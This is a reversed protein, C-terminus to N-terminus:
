LSHPVLVRIHPCWLGAARPHYRSCPRPPLSIDRCKPAIDTPVPPLTCHGVPTGQGCWAPPERRGPLLGTQLELVTEAVPWYRCGGTGLSDRGAAAYIGAGCSCGLCLADTGTRCRLEEPCSQWWRREVAWDSSPRKGPPLDTSHTGTPCWLSATGPRLPGAPARVRPQPKHTHLRCWALCRHRDAQSLLGLTHAAADGAALEERPRCGDGRGERRRGTEGERDRSGLRVLALGPQSTQLGASGARTWEQEGFDRSPFVRVKFCRRHSRMPRACFGDRSHRPTTEGRREQEPRM